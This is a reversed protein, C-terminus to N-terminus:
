GNNEFCVYRTVVNPDNPDGTVSQKGREIVLLNNIYYIYGPSNLIKLDEKTNINKVLGKSYNNSLEYKFNADTGNGSDEDYPDETLEGDKGVTNINHIYYYPRKYSPKFWYNDLVKSYADSTLRTAACRWTDGKNYCKYTKKVNYIVICNLLHLYNAPM